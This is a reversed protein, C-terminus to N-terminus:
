GVQNNTSDLNGGLYVVESLDDMCSRNQHFDLTLCTGYRVAGGIYYGTPLTTKGFFFCLFSLIHQASFCFIIVWLETQGVFGIHILKKKFDEIGPELCEPLLFDLM